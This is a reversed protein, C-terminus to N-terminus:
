PRPRTSWYPNKSWVRSSMLISPVFGFPFVVLGTVLKPCIKEVYSLTQANKWIGIEKLKKDFCSQMKHLTREQAPNLIKSSVMLPILRIEKALKGWLSDFQINCAHNWFYESIKCEWIAFLIISVFPIHVHFYHVFKTWKNGTRFTKTHGIRYFFLSSMGTRLIKM